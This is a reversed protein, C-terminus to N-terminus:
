IEGDYKEGSAADLAALVEIALDRPDNHGAAIQRLAPILNAKADHIQRDRDWKARREAMAAQFKANRKEKAAACHTGCKTLKGTADPDYKAATTCRRGRREKWIRETCSIIVPTDM